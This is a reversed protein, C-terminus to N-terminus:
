EELGLGLGLLTREGNLVEWLVKAVSKGNRALLGEWLKTNGHGNMLARAYIGMMLTQKLNFHVGYIYHWSTVGDLIKSNECSFMANDSDGLDLNAGLSAGKEVDEKSSPIEKWICHKKVELYLMKNKNKHAGLRNQKLSKYMIPVAERHFSVLFQRVITALLFEEEGLWEENGDATIIYQRVDQLVDYCIQYVQLYLCTIWGSTGKDKTSTSHHHGHFLESM